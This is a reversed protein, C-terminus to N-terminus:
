APSTLQQLPKPQSILPQLRKKTKHRTPNQLSRIRNQSLRRTQSKKRKPTHQLLPLNSNKPQRNSLAPQRLPQLHHNPHTEHTNDGFSKVDCRWKIDGAGRIGKKKKLIILLLRPSTDRNTRPMKGM